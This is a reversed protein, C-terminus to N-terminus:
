PSAYCITISGHMRESPGRVPKRGHTRGTGLATATFPIAISPDTVERHPKLEVEIEPNTFEIDAWAGHQWVVVILPTEVWWQHHAESAITRPACGVTPHPKKAPPAPSFGTRRPSKRLTRM